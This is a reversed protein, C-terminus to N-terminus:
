RCIDHAGAIYWTCAHNRAYEDRQADQHRNYIGILTLVIIIALITKLINKINTKTKM